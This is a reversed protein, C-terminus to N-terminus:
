VKGHNLVLQAVNKSAGPGGLKQLLDDQIKKAKDKGEPSLLEKLAQTLSAVTMKEQILEKVEEKNLILNVLSIWKIKVL